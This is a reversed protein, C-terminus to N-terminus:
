KAKGGEQSKKRRRPRMIFALEWLVSAWRQVTFGVTGLVVFLFALVGLREATGVAAPWLVLWAVLIAVVDFFFPAAIALLVLVVFVKGGAGSEWVREFFRQRESLYSRLQEEQEEPKSPPTSPTSM